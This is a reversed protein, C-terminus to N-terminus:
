GPVRWLLAAVLYFLVFAPIAFYSAAGPSRNCPRSPIRRALVARVRKARQKGDAGAEVEFSLRLGIGPRGACGEFAKIHVFIEQGGHSPAIFGFGREDNWTKLIGDVACRQHDQEM